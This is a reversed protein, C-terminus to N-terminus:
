VRACLHSRVARQCDALAADLEALDALVPYDAEFEGYLHDLLESERIGTLGDNQTGRVASQREDALRDCTERFSALRDHRERLEEFGLQLLPTEDADALWETIADLEDAVERIRDREAGIADALLGVEKRRAEIRSVLQAKLGPAFGGAAPSLAAALEASLEDAMAESLTGADAYPLVTETFAERVSEAASASATGTATGVALTSGASQGLRGNASATAGGGQQGADASVERVREGFEEFATAKEEIRDREAEAREIADATRREVTTTEASTQKLTM